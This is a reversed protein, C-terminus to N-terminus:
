RVQAVGVLGVQQALGAADGVDARGTLNASEQELGAQDLLLL